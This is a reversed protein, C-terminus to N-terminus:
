KDTQSPNHQVWRRRARPDADSFIQELHHRVHRVYDEIVFRLTARTEYGMDCTNSLARPDVHAIVHVLHKNYRYWFDVVDTWQQKLYQQSDVWHTQSYVLVGIDAVEQMRVIRQHNNTASDILHGLIEKLAWKDPYPKASARTEAVALLRPRSADVLASLDEAIVQM